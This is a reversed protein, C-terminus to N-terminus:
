LSLLAAATALKRCVPNTFEGQILAHAQDTDSPSHICSLGLSFPVQAVFRALRFKRRDQIANEHTTLRELDVSLGDVDTKRPKFAFSTITNDPKIFNPAVTIRRLLGDDPRITEILPPNTRRTYGILSFLFSKIQLSM